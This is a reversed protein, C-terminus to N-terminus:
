CSRTQDFKRESLCSLLRVAAVQAWKGGGILAVQFSVHARVRALLRVFTLEAREAAAVAAVQRVVAASPVFEQWHFTSAGQGMLLHQTDQLLLGARQGVTSTEEDVEAGRRHHHVFSVLRIVEGMLQGVQALFGKIVLAPRRLVPEGRVWVVVVVM